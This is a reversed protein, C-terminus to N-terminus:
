NHVPSYKINRDEKPVPFIFGAAYPVRTTLIWRNGDLFKAATFQQIRAPSLEKIGAWKARHAKHAGPGRNNFETYFLTKLAFTDNWPLWGQPQIFDDVFSEMIVTRSYEKWPRGLYSKIKYRNPYYEPDPKFTCNQLVLGTPQRIDKRGQATIVNKQNDLPKRVLLTCGQFVAAANGFIFDITGSIICDRYFQRYAHVYLTDQYGDMHCNYFIARDASVRLAVAQHKEPGASNEFGIDRAIFNDAHVAVTATQYTGTGDIFNLRGTIRSKTPGDGVIMVHTSSSNIWVKEEYVGEKVYVVFTRKNNTPVDRLAENITRYKGSGDKAVVVNPRMRRASTAARLRRTPELDFEDSSSFTSIEAVMALANSTMEMAPELTARMREGADGSFGEFEDLCTEENTIAGSLWVKLDVLNETTIDFDDLKAYSRKLDRAAWGALERCSDLAARARPDPEAALLAASSGIAKIVHRIAARFATSILVKPNTSNSSVLADECSRKYDTTSCIRSVPKQSSSLDPIDDEDGARIGVTLAVMMAVLIVFCVSVISIKKSRENM